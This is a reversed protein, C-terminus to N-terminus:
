KLRVKAPAGEKPQKGEARPCASSKRGWASKQKARGVSVEVGCEKENKASDSIMARWTQMHEQMKSM